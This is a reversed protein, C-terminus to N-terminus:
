GGCLLGNFFYATPSLSGDQALDLFSFSPMNAFIGLNESASSRVLPGSAALCLKEVPQYGLHLTLICNDIKGTHGCWQRQVGPTKNGKKPHATEDIVGISCRHSHEVAVIQEVIDVMGEEDWAHRSLFQQLTRPAIGAADAIPEISKRRLDSLQGSVYTGMHDAPESRGFCSGFQRLYSMLMPKLALIQQADM